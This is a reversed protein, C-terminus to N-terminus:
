RLLRPSTLFERRLQGGGWDRLARSIGVLEGQFDQVRILDGMKVEKTISSIHLDLIPRGHLLPREFGRKIRVMPLYGLAQDISILKKHWGEDKLEELTISDKLHFPGSRIRTLKAQHAGCGLTEGIDVCLTRVYTGKTCVVRFDIEPPRFNLLELEIIRVKRPSRYVVEGKRALEYLRRGGHHLASVMPPVQKIEGLFDRFAKEMDERSVSIGKIEKLVKGAADQTDTTVGLFMTGQYEKDTDMLFQVIKTAKGLCMPLVGDADPDLTGTHGVRRQKTIRRVRLVVDHSTVGRPKNINLVGDM